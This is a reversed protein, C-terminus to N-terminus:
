TYRYAEIFSYVFMGVLFLFICVWGVCVQSYVCSNYSTTLHVSTQIYQNQCHSNPNMINKNGLPDGPVLALISGHCMHPPLASNYMAMHAASVPKISFTVNKSSWLLLSARKILKVPSAIRRKPRDTSREM